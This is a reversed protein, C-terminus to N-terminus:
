GGVAVMQNDSQMFDPAHKGSLYAELAATAEIEGRDTLMEVLDFTQADMLCRRLRGHSDLRLRNCGECFAESEPTIWGIKVEDGNRRFLMQRAPSGMRHSLKVIEGQGQLFETVETAPIFQERAWSGDPGIQMLEIFRVELNREQAFRILAPVDEQWHDQMLVANLKLPTLGAEIAADIGQLTDELDGGTLERFRTPNLTDLSVNVRSLGAEKLPLALDHLRSGNTTLTVEEFLKEAAL